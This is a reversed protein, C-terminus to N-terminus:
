TDAIHRLYVTETHLIVFKRMHFLVYSNWYRRVFIQPPPPLPPNFLTVLIGHLIQDKVLQDTITWLLHTAPM